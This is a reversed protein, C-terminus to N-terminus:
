RVDNGKVVSNSCPVVEDDPSITDPRSDSSDDTNVWCLPGGLLAAKVAVDPGFVGDLGTQNVVGLVGGQLVPAALLALPILDDEGGAVAALEEGVVAEEGSILSVVRVLRPAGLVTRQLLEQVRVRLEVPLDELVQLDPRLDLWPTEPDVVRIRINVLVLDAQQSVGPVRHHGVLALPGAHRDLVGCGEADQEVLLVEVAVHGLGQGHVVLNAQRPGSADLGGSGLSGVVDVLSDTLKLCCCAHHTIKATVLVDRM